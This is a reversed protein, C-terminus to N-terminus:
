SSRPTWRARAGRRPRLRAPRGGRRRLRSPRRDLDAAPGPDLAPPQGPARPPRTPTSGPRRWSRPRQGTSPTAPRARRDPGLEPGPRAGRGQGPQEVVVARAVARADADDRAGRVVATILTTAGEGDAAQQRALDRAVAEIAAGLAAAAPTARRRGARQGRRGSALSSCPTTRARTATSRSSTGPGRPPRGSCAGSSQRRRRRRRHPDVSLMTAM